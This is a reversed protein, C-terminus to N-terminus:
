TPTKLARRRAHERYPGGGFLSVAQYFLWADFTSAGDAILAAYFIEDARHKGHKGSAYLDDHLVAARRSSGNIDFRKRNRLVRPISALDTERGKKVTHRFSGDDWVLPAIVLWWGPRIVRLDCDTLFM